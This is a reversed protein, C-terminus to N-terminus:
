PPLTLIVTVKWLCQCMDILETAATVADHEEEREFMVDLLVQAGVRSLPHM